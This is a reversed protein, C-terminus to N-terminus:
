VVMSLLPQFYPIAFVRRSNIASRKQVRLLWATLLNFHIQIWNKFYRHYQNAPLHTDTGVSHRPMLCRSPTRATSPPVINGAPSTCTWVCPVWPLSESASGILHDRLITFSHLIATQHRTVERRTYIKAVGYGFCKVVRGELFNNAVGGGFHKALGNRFKKVVRGGFVHM